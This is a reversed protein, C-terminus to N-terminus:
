LLQEAESDLLLAGTVVVQEGAQLGALVPVRGDRSLGTRVPRAEFHGDQHQVYVLRQSGDKILVASVPLNLVATAPQQLRVEALMGPLLASTDGQLTLYVPLRRLENVRQGAGAVTAALSVDAGPVRISASLGPVVTAAEHEPIDAVVWLQSPDGLEILPEGGPAAMAGVSGHSALVTGGTPARLVFRDGEGAGILGAALRARELEAQAERVALGASFKEVELGVGLRLLETQRRLSDQAAALQTEAQAVAARLAAAEASQLTLLPDGARVVDGPQVSLAVIRAEVPTDVSAVAQARFALRGPLLPGTASQYGGAAETRIYQLSAASLQLPGSGAATQSLEPGSCATLGIMMVSVGFYHPWAYSKNNKMEGDVLFHSCYGKALASASM